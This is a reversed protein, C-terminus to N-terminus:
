VVRQAALTASVGRAWAIVLDPYTVATATLVDTINIPWPGRHWAV